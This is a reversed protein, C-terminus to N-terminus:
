RALSLSGATVGYDKVLVGWLCSMQLIAPLIHHVVSPEKTYWKGVLEPLIGIKILEIAKMFAITIFPEDLYIQQVFM